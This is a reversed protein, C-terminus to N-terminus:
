PRQGDIEQIVAQNRRISEQYSRVAEAPKQLAELITGRVQFLHAIYYSRKLWTPRRIAQEVTALAQKPQKNKLLFTAKRAWADLLMEEGPRFGKPFKLKLIADLEKLAEKPKGRRSALSALQHHSRAMSLLALMKEEQRNPVRPQLKSSKCGTTVGLLLLLSWWLWRVPWRRFTHRENTRSEVM